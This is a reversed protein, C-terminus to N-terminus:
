SSYFILKIWVFTSVLLVYMAPGDNPTSRRAKREDEDIVEAIHGDGALINGAGGRGTSFRGTGPERSRSRDAFTNPSAPDRSRSRASM